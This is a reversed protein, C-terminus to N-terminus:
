SEDRTHWRLLAAYRTLGAGHAYLIVPAGDRLQGRRRAEILNAAIAAGGVHAYTRYTSPVRDPALGLGDAVAAQYWALPQIMSIAAVADIPFAARDCLEKITDIPYALCNRVLERLQGADATGPFVRGSGDKWWSAGPTDEYQWTVAAALRADGGRVLHVLGKGEPVAGVVFAGSADGFIPSSPYAMPNARNVIHSQVCLVYTARGSEVLGAAIELQAPASSCFSEVGLAAAGTCGVLAQIAPGNSPALRDPVLASSLLIDIQEPRVRADELAMVCARADCAASTDSDAAVRREVAGKFPDDDYPAAHRQFLEEYPRPTRTRREVHTLDVANRAARQERFDRAFSEPWADNTRTAQPVWLGLGLIGARSM